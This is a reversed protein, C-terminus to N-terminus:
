SMPGVAKSGRRLFACQPNQRGFFGVTETPNSGAFKPVLPRVSVICVLFNHSSSDTSINHTHMIIFQQSLQMNGPGAGPCTAVAPQSIIQRKKLGINRFYKRSLVAPSGEQHLTSFHPYKESFNQQTHLDADVPVMNGIIETQLNGGGSAARSARGKTRGQM